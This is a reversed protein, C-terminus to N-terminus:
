IHILSLCLSLPRRQQLCLSRHRRYLSCITGLAGPFNSFGCCKTTTKFCLSISQFLNEHSKSFLFTFRGKSFASHILHLVRQAERLGVPRFDIHQTASVGPLGDFLRYDRLQFISCAFSWFALGKLWVVGLM